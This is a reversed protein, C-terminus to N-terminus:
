ARRAVVSIHLAGRRLLLQRPLLRWAGAHWALEPARWGAGYRQFHPRGWREVAWGGMELQRRLGALNPIQWFPVSGFNCM